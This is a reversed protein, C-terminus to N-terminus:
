LKSLEDLGKAVKELKQKLEPDKGKSMKRFKRAFMKLKWWQHIFVFPERMVYPAIILMAFILLATSMWRPLMFLVPLEQRLREVFVGKRFALAVSLAWWAFLAIFIYM